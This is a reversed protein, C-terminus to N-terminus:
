VGDDALFDRSRARVVDLVHKFTDPNRALVERVRDGPWALLRLESAASVTAHRAREDTLAGEGFWEGVGLVAVVRDGVTVRAQGEVILYFFNAKRGHEVVVGGARITHDTALASFRACEAAPLDKFLETEGLDM